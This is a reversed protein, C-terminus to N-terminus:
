EDSEGEVIEEYVDVTEELIDDITADGERALPEFLVRSAAFAASRRGRRFSRGSRAGSGSSRSEASSDAETADGESDEETTDAQGDDRIEADVDGADEPINEARGEPGEEPSGPESPGEVGDADPGAQAGVDSEIMDMTQQADDHAESDGDDEFDGDPGRGAKRSGKGRTAGSGGSSM